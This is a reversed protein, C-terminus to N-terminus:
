LCYQIHFRATAEQWFLIFIGVEIITYEFIYKGRLRFNSEDACKMEFHYFIIFTLQTKFDYKM